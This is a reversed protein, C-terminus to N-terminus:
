AQLQQMPMCRPTAQVQSCHVALKSHCANFQPDGVSPNSLSSSVSLPELVPDLGLDELKHQVGGTHMERSHKGTQIGEM